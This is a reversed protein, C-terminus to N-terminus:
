PQYAVQVPQLRVAVEVSRRQEQDPIQLDDPSRSGDALTFPMQAELNPLLGGKLTKFNDDHTDYNSHDITVCRVGAEVLRRAM